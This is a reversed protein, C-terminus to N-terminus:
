GTKSEYNDYLFVDELDSGVISSDWSAGKNLM